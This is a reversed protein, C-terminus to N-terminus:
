EFTITCQIILRMCMAELLSVSMRLIGLRRTRKQVYESAQKLINKAGVVRVSRMWTCSFFYKCESSIAIITNKHFIQYFINTLIGTLSSTKLLSRYGKTKITLLWSFTASVLKEEGQLHHEKKISGEQREMFETPLM